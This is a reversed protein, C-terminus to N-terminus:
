YDHSLLSSDEVFFIRAVSEKHLCVSVRSAMQQRNAVDAAVVVLM